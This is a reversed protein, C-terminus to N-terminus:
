LFFDSPALDPSYPPHPLRKLGLEKFKDDTLHPRANDCLYYKNKTSIKESLQQLVENAFFEKTFKQGKPLMTISKIGSRSWTVAIMSKKFGITTKQRTPATIGNELWMSSRSNYQYIWTEDETLVRNLQKSKM